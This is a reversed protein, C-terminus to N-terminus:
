QISHRVPASSIRRSCRDHCGQKAGSEEGEPAGSVLVGFTGRRRDPVTRAHPDDLVRGARSVGEVPFLREQCDPLVAVLAMLEVAHVVHDRQRVASDDDGVAPAVLDAVVGRIPRM